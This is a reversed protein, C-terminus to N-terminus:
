FILNQAFDSLLIQYKVHIVSYNISIDRQIKGRLLFTESVFTYLFHFCIAHSINNKKEAFRGTKQVFAFFYVACASLDCVM